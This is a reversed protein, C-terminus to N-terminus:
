SEEGEDPLALALVSFMLSNLALLGVAFSEEESSLASLREDLVQMVEETKAEMAESVPEGQAALQRFFQATFTAIARSAVFALIGLEEGEREKERLQHFVAQFADDWEGYCARGRRLLETASPTPERPSQSAM